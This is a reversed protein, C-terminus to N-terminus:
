SKRSRRVQFGVLGILGLAASWITAPEPVVVPVLQFGDVAAGGPANVTATLTSNGTLNTLEFYNGPGAADSAVGTGSVYANMTTNSIAKLFYAQSDDSDTVGVATTGAAGNPDNIYIYLDYLTSANLGTLTLVGEPAPCYPGHNFLDNDGPNAFGTVPGGQHYGADTTLTESIATTAGTSDELNSLTSSGPSFYPIGPNTDNNWITESVVGGSAGNTLQTGAAGGQDYGFVVSVVQAQSSATFALVGVAAASLILLKKM